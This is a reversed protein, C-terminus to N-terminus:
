CGSVVVVVVVCRLLIILLLGCLLVGLWLRLLMFVCAGLM